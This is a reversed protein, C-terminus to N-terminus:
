THNYITLYMSCVLYNYGFIKISLIFIIISDIILTIIIFLIYGLNKIM